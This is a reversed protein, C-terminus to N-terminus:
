HSPLLSSYGCAQPYRCDAQIVLSPAMLKTSTDTTTINSRNPWWEGPQPRFDFFSMSFISALFTGPLLTAGLLSLGKMPKSDRTAAHALRRQEGAIKLNLKADKQAIDATIFQVQLTRNSGNM